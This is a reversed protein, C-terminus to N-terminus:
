FELSATRDFDEIPFVSKFVGQLGTDDRKDPTVDEQLFRSYSKRQLGLLNPFELPAEIRSFTKRIRRNALFPTPM